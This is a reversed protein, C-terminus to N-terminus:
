FVFVPFLLGDAWTMFFLYAFVFGKGLLDGWEGVKDLSIIPLSHIAWSM